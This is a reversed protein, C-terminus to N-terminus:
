HAQLGQLVPWRLHLRSVQGPASEPGSHATRDPCVKAAFQTGGHKALSRRNGFASVRIRHLRSIGSTAWEDDPMGSSHITTM